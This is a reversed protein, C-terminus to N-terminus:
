IIRQAVFWVSGIIKVLVNNCTKLLIVCRVFKMEGLVLGRAVNTVCAIEIKLFVLM